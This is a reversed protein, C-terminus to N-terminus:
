VNGPVAALQELQYRLRVLAFAMLVGVALGLGLTPLPPAADVANRWLNLWWVNYTYAFSVQAILNPHQAYEVLGALHDAVPSLRPDWFATNPGSVHTFPNSRAKYAVFVGAIQVLVSVGLLTAARARAGSSRLLGPAELLPLTLLPLGCMVFRPGWADGGYWDSLPSSPLLSTLGVGLALFAAAPHKRAFAPIALAALLLIPSYLLIGKGPSILQGLFGFWIPTVMAAAANGAQGYQLPGGFRVTDYWAVFIISVLLPLSFSLLSRIGARRPLGRTSYLVFPVLPLLAAAASLRFLLALGLCVGARFWRMWAPLPRAAFSVEAALLAERVSALLLLATPTVDFGYSAYPWASTAFAYVLALAAARRPRYGLELALLCLLVVTAASVPITSWCVLHMPRCIQLSASCDSVSFVAAAARALLFFPVFFLSQGLGHSAYWHGDVGRVGWGASLVHPNQVPVDFWGHILLSQTVNLEAYADGSTINSGATFLYVLLTAVFLWRLLSGIQPTRSSM